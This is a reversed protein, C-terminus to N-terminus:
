GFTSPGSLGVKAPGTSGRVVLPLPQVHGVDIPQGDLISSVALEAIADFPQQVTTLGPVALEAEPVGDFGIVSVDDPVRMGKSSLWGMALLAARDSMALLGTPPNDLAFLRDMAAWVSEQTSDSDAYPVAEAAIGAEAMGEWYGRVRDTVTLYPTELVQQPSALQGDWMEGIGLIAVRRHGLDVLHRAAARAGGSNDIAIGPTDGLGEEMGLAIFPLERKETEGVLARGEAACLLVLGDVLANQINWALRGDNVSSVLSLGAGRRDCAASLATMMTRAWQDDFFYTLPEATAVGIANVKGARLLRGTLSPGAYGLARAAAHVRDRVEERVVDPRNFVNSATGQSVGAAKAVDRLKVPGTHMTM